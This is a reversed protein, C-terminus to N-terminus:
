DENSLFNLTSVGNDAERLDTVRILWAFQYYPSTPNFPTIKSMRLSTHSSIILGM